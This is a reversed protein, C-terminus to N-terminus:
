SEDDGGRTAIHLDPEPDFAYGVGRHSVIHRADDELARRLEKIGTKVREEAGVSQEPQWVAQDLETHSIPQGSREALYLLLNYCTPGLSLPRGHALVERRRRDILLPGAQLLHEVEQDEIFREFQSSFPRYRSDTRVILCQEQLRLLASQYLKQRQSWSLTALMYREQSSLQEWYYGFHSKAQRMFCTTLSEFDLDTVQFGKEAIAQYVCDGAVQLFFPHGGGAQLIWDFVESSPSIGCQRFGDNILGHSDSESFLNLRVISFINFFNSGLLTDREGDSLQDLPVKSATVFAVRHAIALSRMGGFFDVDLNRNAALREFEDLMLILQRGERKMQSVLRVLSLYATGRDAAPTLLFEAYAEGLGSAIEHQFYRYLDASQFAGFGECDVFVFLAREPDLGHQRAIVPNSVHM